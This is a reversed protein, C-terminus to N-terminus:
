ENEYEETLLVLLLKEQDKKFRPLELVGREQLAIGIDDYKKIRTFEKGACAEEWTMGENKDILSKKGHCGNAYVYKKKNKTRSRDKCMWQLDDPKALLISRLFSEADSLSKMPNEGQKHDLESDVAGYPTNCSSCTFRKTFPYRKMSRPNTNKVMEVTSAEYSRKMPSDAWMKRIAGRFWSSMEKETIGYAKCSEELEKELDIMQFLSM